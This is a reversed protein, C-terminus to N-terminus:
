QPNSNTPKQDKFGLNLKSLAWAGADLRRFDLAVRTNECYMIM